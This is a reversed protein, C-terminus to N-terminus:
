EHSECIHGDAMRKKDYICHVVCSLERAARDLDPNVLRMGACHTTVPSACLDVENGISANPVLGQSSWWFGNSEPVDIFMACARVQGDPFFMLNRRERVLCPLPESNAPAVTQEVRLEVAYQRTLERLQQYINAWEGANLVIDATAFGRNTVHHVNVYEFKLDACLAVLSELNGVNARSLSIIGAIRYGKDRSRAINTELYCFSGRGRIRDHESADAGDLSFCVAPFQDSKFRDLFRAFGSHGNTVLRAQMGEQQTLLVADIIQPYLTPEGGLFTIEHVGWQPATRILHELLRFDFDKKTDLREGIFCHSCRLNCKYTVYVDISPVSWPITFSSQSM